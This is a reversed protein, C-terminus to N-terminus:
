SIGSDNGNIIGEKYLYRETEAVVHLSEYDLSKDDLPQGFDLLSGLPIEQITMGSYVAQLIIQIHIGRSTEVLEMNETSEVKFGNVQSLPDTLELGTYDHVLSAITERERLVEEEIQTFATNELIRSAIVLDYGYSLTEIMEPMVKFHDPDNDALTILHSYGRDRAFTLASSLSSGYGLSSDHHIVTVNSPNEDPLTVSAEDGDAIICIEGSFYPELREIFPEIDMPSETICAVCLNM